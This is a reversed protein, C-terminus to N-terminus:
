PRSMHPYIKSYDWTLSFFVSAWLCQTVHGLRYLKNDSFSPCWRGPTARVRSLFIVATDETEHSSLWFKIKLKQIKGTVRLTFHYKKSQKFLGKLTNSGVANLLSILKAAKFLSRNRNQTEEQYSCSILFQRASWHLGLSAPSNAGEEISLSTRSLSRIFGKAGNCAKTWVVNSCPM